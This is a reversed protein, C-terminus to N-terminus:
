QQLAKNNNSIKDICIYLYYKFRFFKQAVKQTLNQKYGRNNRENNGIHLYVFLIRFVFSKPM